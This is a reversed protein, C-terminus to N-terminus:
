SNNAAQSGVLFEQIPRVSIRLYIWALARASSTVSPIKTQWAQAEANLISPEYIGKGDFCWGAQM